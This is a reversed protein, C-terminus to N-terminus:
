PNYNAHNLAYTMPLTARTSFTQEENKRRPDKIKISIKVQLPLRNSQGLAQTTDWTKQWQSSVSDYYEVDFSQIDELLIQVKGGRQPDDDIRNQERRALVKMSPDDPHRTVFYSLENQDSEHADRYLRRHSFSTFDIRDEAGHDKGVFATRVSQLALGPNVHTSVFAMSLERSIKEMTLHIARNRNLDDEIRSRNLATQAFGGYIMAGIMAAIAIALMVEILTFADSRM